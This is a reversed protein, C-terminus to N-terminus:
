VDYPAGASSYTSTRAAKVVRTGTEMRLGPESDGEYGDVITSVESSNTRSRTLREVYARIEPTQRELGLPALVARDLEESQTEGADVMRKYAAIIDAREKTTLKRPDLIPLAAVEYVMMSNLGGGMVRGHLERFLRTLVSNLTALIIQTHSDDHPTVGYLTDKIAVLDRNHFHIFARHYGKSVVIPPRPIMGLNFWCGNNTRNSICTVRRHVPPMEGGNGWMAEALYRFLGSRGEEWLMRLIHSEQPTLEEPRARSPLEGKPLPTEGLAGSQVGSLYRSVYGNLDLIVVDTQERDFVVGSIQSISRIVPTLFQADIGRIMAEQETMLFFEDAGTTVGRRVGAVDRLRCMKPHSVLDWYLQPARFFLSWKSVKALESQKKVIVRYIENEILKDAPLEEEVLSVIDAIDMERRLRILKVLNDTRDDDSHRELIIISTHVLPDRFVRIPFTIIALIRYHDLMFRQLDNGYKVSLWKDSTIFGLRGGEKLFETAHTFFYVYIDAQGSIKVDLRKLHRTCLDKDALLEQRIYPPNGVIADFEPFATQDDDTVEGGKDVGKGALRSSQPEVNFFDEVVLHLERTESSPDQMALNVAALHVPFTNMDIGYIQDLIAQHSHDNGARAKLERLRSYAQVLFSGSGCSPDLVVDNHNKITLRTILQIIEPSTYYQGFQKREGTPIIQEYVRGLSDHRLRSLDCLAVEELFGAVESRLSETVPFEYLIADHEPVAELGMKEAFRLFTRQRAAAGLVEELSFDPVDARASRLLTHLILDSLLLYAAHLSYWRTGTDHRLGWGQADIWTRVTAHFVPTRRVSSEIEDALREHFVKLLHIFADTSSLSREQESHVQAGPSM